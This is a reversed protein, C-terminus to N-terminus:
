MKKKKFEEHCSKCNTAKALAKVDDAKAAKLIEECREKWAKEDGMPPKNQALATYALILKTKEEPTAMGSIVKDRLGEKEHLKMVQKITLEPKEEAGTGGAFALVGLGLLSGIVFKATRMGLLERHPASAQRRGGAPSCTRDEGGGLPM